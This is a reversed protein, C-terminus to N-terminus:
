SLIPKGGSTISKLQTLAYTQAESPLAAYELSKGNVLPDTYGTQVVWKFLNVVAKGKTADTQDKRIMVWSYSVIPYAKDGSANTISFNTPSVGSVTGAAATAGDLSAKLFKGSANKLSAYQLQSQIVYALEVYGISGETTKVAQGVGANQNGGIGTPWAPAKATGVKTKWDPSVKSLYDTFAYSTGSSDARHVVTIDTSPLNTGSNLATIAPDNWKKITGMYINALTTGDLKLNDVNPLNYAIAVVGIITPLQVLTADGGAAAVETATMPVDSAGFDVTNKTFAQIGGGSGIAQYNVSVQSFHQNYAYFAKTYYPGPFTAGAGQLQGSGVDATPTPSNSASPAGGCAVLAMATAAILWGSFREIRM